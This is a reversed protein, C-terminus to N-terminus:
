ATTAVAVAVASLRARLGVAHEHCSLRKRAYHLSRTTRRLARICLVTIDHDFPGFTTLSAAQGAGLEPFPKHLPSGSASVWMCWICQPCAVSFLKPSHQCYVHSFVIIVGRSIPLKPTLFFAKMIILVGHM